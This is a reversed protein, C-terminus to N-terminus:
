RHKPLKATLDKSLRWTTYFVASINEGNYFVQGSDPRLNDTIINMLTTKGAGNAGLLGYVGPTLTLSIDSLAKKGHRYSKEIHELRLEM